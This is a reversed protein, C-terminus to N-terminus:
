KKNKDIAISYVSPGKIVKGNMDFRSGHCPCDWTKDVMNFILSCGMHPCINSVIHEKGNEDKYVGFNKGNEYRVQVNKYFDHNKNIKSM